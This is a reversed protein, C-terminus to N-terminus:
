PSRGSTGKRVGSGVGSSGGGVAVAVSAGGRGGAAAVAVKVRVGFSSTVVSVGKGSSPVTSLYCGVAASGQGCSVRREGSATSPETRTERHNAAVPTAIECGAAEYELVMLCALNARVHRSMCTCPRPPLAPIGRPSLIVSRFVPGQGM